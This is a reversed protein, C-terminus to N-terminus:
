FEQEIKAELGYNWIQKEENNKLKIVMNQIQEIKKKNKMKWEEM